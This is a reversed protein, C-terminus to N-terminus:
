QAMKELHTQEMEFILLLFSLSTLHLQGLDFILGHCLLSTFESREVRLRM